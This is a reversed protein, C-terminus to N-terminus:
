GENGKLTHNTEAMEHKKNKKKRKPVPQELESLFNLAPEIWTGVRWVTTHNDLPAPVMNQGLDLYLRYQRRPLDNGTADQFLSCRTRNLHNDQGRYLDLNRALNGPHRGQRPPILAQHTDM